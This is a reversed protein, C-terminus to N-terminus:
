INVVITNEIKKVSDQFFEELNEDSFFKKSTDNFVVRGDKIYLIEYGLKYALDLNHTILIKNNLFNNNELINYVMKVKQPDLNATPEDLITYKANHLIASAILLLQSEGSSLYKCSQRSLYTIDLLELVEDITFNSYLDSLELYEFVSLYEDYIKLKSPIYNILKTKIDGHIYSPNLDDISISDNQIIGSIAKALTTKGTGNSGLIILSKGNELNFSIDSLIFNSYGDIKLM